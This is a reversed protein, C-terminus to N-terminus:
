LEMEEERASSAADVVQKIALNGSPTTRGEKAAQAKYEARRDLIAQIEAEVESEPIVPDNGARLQECARDFMWRELHDKTGGMTRYFLDHNNAAMRRHIYDYAARSRRYQGVLDESSMDPPVEDVMLADCAAQYDGALPWTTRVRAARVQAAAAELVEEPYRGLALIYDALM